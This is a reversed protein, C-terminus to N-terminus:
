DAGVPIAQLAVRIEDRRGKDALPRTPRAPAKQAIELYHRAKGYDGRELWYDGMFYNADIGDPSIEIARTLYILAQDDDGFGIPSGPVQYYLSGLTTYISGELAMPDLKEAELLLERAKTVQPLANFLSSFGTMSGAFSARVIAEWIKPEPRDPDRMVLVAAREALAEYRDAQQKSPTEYNIKAWESMIEALEPDTPVSAIAAGSALAIWMSLLLTLVRYM